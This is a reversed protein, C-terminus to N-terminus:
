MSWPAADYGALRRIAESKISEVIEHAISSEWEPHECSQYDLSSALKIAEVPSIRKANPNYVCGTTPEQEHHSYRYNVSTVNEAYLIDVIEQENGAGLSRSPNGVYFTVKNVCAFRVLASIHDPSCIFASM